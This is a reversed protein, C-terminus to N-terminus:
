LPKMRELLTSMDNPIPSQLSITKGTFPHKFKLEWAHLMQRSAHPAKRSGGYLSDGVIPIHIGSLHVRIQHTRGTEIQVELLSIEQNDLLGHEIVSFHTIAEKGGHNGTMKKRNVPHRAIPHTITDTIKKPYGHIIALYTKKITHNKFMAQLRELAVQTKAILLTGSTDKDLRHVIGPRYKDEFEDAFNAFKYLLANVVTKNENGDGPHVVMGAPKNIVLLNADQFLVELPIDEPKPLCTEKIQPLETIKIIDGTAIKTKTSSISKDSCYIKKNKILKQWNARSIDPRQEALFKDIRWDAYEPAVIIENNSVPNIPM